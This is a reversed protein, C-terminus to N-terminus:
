YDIGKVAKIGKKFPHKIEKMETVLDAFEIMKKSAGRGTLLLNMKKQKNKILVLIDEEKILGVSYATIIEDLIILFYKGCLIKEVALDIGKMAAKQHIELNKIDKGIKYFGEGTQIIEFGKLKKAAKIEGIDKDAKMFQIMLVNFGWGIARFATGIAASTKGKGNGTLIISIGM